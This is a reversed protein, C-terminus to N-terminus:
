KVSGIPEAPENETISVLEPDDVPLYEEKQKYGEVAIIEGDDNRIVWGKRVEKYFAILMLTIVIVALVSGIITICQAPSIGGILLLSISIAGVGLSWFVRNWRAPEEDGQLNKSTIMAMSYINGNLLTQMSMFGYVMLVPYLFKIFPIHDWLAVIAEGQGLTAIINAVDVTETQYVYISYNM